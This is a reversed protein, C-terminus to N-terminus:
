AHVQTGGTKLSLLAQKWTTALDRAFEITDNLMAEDKKIIFEAIHQSYFEYLRRLDKAIDYEMNLTVILESLILRVKHLPANMDEFQDQSYLKKALLLSKVMEQYLLLTLEGPSATEVQVKLYQQQQAYHM